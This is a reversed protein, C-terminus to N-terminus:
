EEEEPELAPHMFRAILPSNELAYTKVGVKDFVGADGERNLLIKGARLSQIRGKVLEEANVSIDSGLEQVGSVTRPLWGTTDTLAKQDDMMYYLVGIEAGAILAKALPEGAERAVKGSRLMQRYLSTQLDFGEEMCKRRTSSTSKKYDVVFIQGSPLILLLDTRGRIPVGEFVGDLSTEVGLIKAGSSELLQRWRLAATEVDKLLNRREVYWELGTLFPTRRLIAEHLLKEVSSKIKTAPPLVTDATFLKEFVEHALTGKTAPNLEEPAWSLPAIDLRDLFWALPSVMLVELGSPTVPRLRARGDMLLDTSLDPDRIEIIRRTVLAVPPALALGCVKERHSKRELTFLLDEPAQIGKYLRAMFTTTGSAAIPKGVPDRLPTLFVARDRVVRLQRRLLSRRRVMGEEVTEVAYGLDNRLVAADAADFVPSMRPGAPYRGESFGLVYLHRVPRWPEEDERFIAVGERSLELGTGLTLPTQPVLAAIEEWPIDEGQTGLLMEQLTEVAGRAAEVHRVVLDSPSLLLSFNKLADVLAKPTEHTEQLLTIMRHGEVGLGEPMKPDFHGDMVEMALRNGTSEDWPMLLSAYLAALAMVPAPRRRTALFHFVTEGGLNRLRSPDKLGSLPIGAQMFVEQAAHDCSGDAPLLVGIDSTKLGSEVTLVRQVMGASVEAAELDDRVALCTVSDDLKVQSAGTVFLSEQLHRLASRERGSAAPDLTRALHDELASDRVPGCNTALKALLAKQWPSLSPFGSKHYVAILRVAESKDAALLEGVAGLDAPLTQGMANHLRSLDALYRKGRDSLRSKGAPQLMKEPGYADLLRRLEWGVTALTSEPDAKLSESWFGDTLKRAAEGLQVKWDTEHPPLLYARRAHDILEGFTGVVVGCRAHDSALARRVKRGSSKDPVLLFHLVDAL